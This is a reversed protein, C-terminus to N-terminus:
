CMQWRASATGAATGCLRSAVGLRLVDPLIGSMPSVSGRAVVYAGLRRSRSRQEDM